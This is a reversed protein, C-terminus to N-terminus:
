LCCYAVLTILLDNVNTGHPASGLCTAPVIWCPSVFRKGGSRRAPGAGHALARLVTDGDVMAGAADTPGDSGDTALALLAVGAMGALGLAASLALEQNRGGTGTGRVTVTTEGGWVICAPASVPTDTPAFARQWRWLM